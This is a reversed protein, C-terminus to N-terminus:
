RRQRLEHVRIVPQSRQIPEVQLAFDIPMPLDAKIELGIIDGSAQRALPDDQLQIGGLATQLDQVLLLEEFGHRELAQDALQEGKLLEEGEHELLGTGLLAQTGQLFTTKAPSESIRWLPYSTRASVLAVIHPFLVILRRQQGSRAFWEYCAAFRPHFVARSEPEISPIRESTGKQDVM